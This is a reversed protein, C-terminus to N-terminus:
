SEAYPRQPNKQHNIVDSLNYKRKRGKGENLKERLEVIERLGELTLHEDNNIMVVIKSFISFNTKAKSSLLNFRGFFPLVKEVIMRPNEVVFIWVGDQRRKLRGCGLHKKLLFLVTNDRQSVNFSPTIQWGHRYDDKKTLSINFSGEGDVFGALYWGIQQPITKIWNQEM